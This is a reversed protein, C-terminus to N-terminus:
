NEKNSLIRRLRKFSANFFAVHLSGKAISRFKWAFDSLPDYGGKFGLCSIDSSVYEVIDEETLDTFFCQAGDEDSYEEKTRTDIVYSCAYIRENSHSIREKLLRVADEQDFPRGQEQNNVIMSSACGIVLSDELHRGKEAHHKARELVQIHASISSDIGAVDEDPAINEFVVNYKSLLRFVPKDEAILYIGM